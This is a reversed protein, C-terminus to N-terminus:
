HVFSRLYVEGAYPPFETFEEGDNDEDTFKGRTHPFSANGERAALAALLSGGRIPSVVNPLEVRITIYTFKGRTHPFGNRLGYSGYRGLLSGGRIPSVAIYQTNWESRM